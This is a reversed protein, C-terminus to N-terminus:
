VYGKKMWVMIEYVNNSYLKPSVDVRDVVYGAGETRSFTPFIARAAEAWDEDNFGRVEDQTEITLKYGTPRQVQADIDYVEYGQDKEIVVGEVPFSILDELGSTPAVLDIAEPRVVVHERSRGSPMGEGREYPRVPNGGREHDRVPHRYPSKRRM